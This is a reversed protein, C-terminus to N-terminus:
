AKVAGRHGDNIKEGTWFVVGKHKKFYRLM